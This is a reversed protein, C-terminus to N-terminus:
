AHKRILKIVLYGMDFEFWREGINPRNQFKHHNNHWGEGWMFIGLLPNNVSNDRVEYNKYGLLPTHCVTNILSGANWLVCAPVIYLTTLAWVGGVIYLILAWILNIHFYYKHMFIHFKDRLVPSRKIDVPSFMSGWQAKLYGLVSPSHPDGKRDAYVHHQRHVATWTISSGTLGLTAFITGLYEFFKSTKFSRHTLLRHYTVSMGICGTFFYVLFVFWIDSLVAINSVWYLTIAHAFLQVIFLKHSTLRM